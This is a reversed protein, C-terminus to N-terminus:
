VVRGRANRRLRWAFGPFISTRAWLRALSPRGPTPTAMFSVNPKPPLASRARKPFRGSATAGAQRLSCGPFTAPRRTLWPASAQASRARPSTTSTPRHGISSTPPNWFADPIHNKGESSGVVFEASWNTKNEGPDETAKTLEIFSNDDTSKWVKNGCRIEIRDLENSDWAKGEFKFITNTTIGRTGIKNEELVPNAVDYYFPRYVATKRGGYTETGKQITKETATVKLTLAGEKTGLPM